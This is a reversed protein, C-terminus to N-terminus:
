NELSSFFAKGPATPQSQDTKFFETVSARYYGSLGDWLEEGRPIVHVNAGHVSMLMDKFERPQVPSVVHLKLGHDRIGDAIIDNIHPDRFGYGIAVLNRSGEGLVEKFLSLYWKLLPEREIIRTKHHGIVMRDTGDHSKWNCSGHLKVYVFNISSKRWFAQGGNKVAKEEPLTIVASVDLEGSSNGRFWGPSELGPIKMLSNDNSYYREIFLDQNLTFIFGREQQQLSGAFRSVFSRCVAFASVRNGQDSIIEDMQRYANRLANLFAAKEQPEYQPKDEPSEMITDYITEFNLDGQIMCKRLKDHRRIEAQNFIAAWMESALYGRFPHTFGAGTLLLNRAPQFWRQGISM